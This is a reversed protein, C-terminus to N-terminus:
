CLVSVQAPEAKASLQTRGSPLYTNDNARNCTCNIITPWNTNRNNNVMRAIRLYLSGACRVFVRVPNLFRM